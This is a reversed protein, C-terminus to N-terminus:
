PDGYARDLSVGRSSIMSSALEPIKWVLVAFIVSAGVIEFLPIPNLLLSQDQVAQYWAITITSFLGVLLYMVFLKIGVRVAYLLYGESFTVTWRSGGFGLFLVGGSLVIYSEILTMLMKATIVVFSLFVLLPPITLFQPVLGALFFKSTAAMMVITIQLGQSFITGPDLTAIGSVAGGASAFSGVVMPMWTPALLLLSYFFFLTVVKKLLSVLVFQEARTALAWWIGSWILEITALSVFLRQAIPLLTQLWSTTAAQFLLDLQNIM